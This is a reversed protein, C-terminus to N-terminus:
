SFLCVPVWLNGYRQTGYLHFWILAKSLIVDLADESGYRHSSFPFSFVSSMFSDSQSEKNKVGHEEVAWSRQSTSLHEAEEGLPIQCHFCVDKQNFYYREWPLFLSVFWLLRSKTGTFITLMVTQWQLCFANHHQRQPSFFPLILSYM